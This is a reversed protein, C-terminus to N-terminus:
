HCFIGPHAKDSITLVMYRSSDLCEEICKEFPPEVHVEAFTEGSELSLVLTCADGRM